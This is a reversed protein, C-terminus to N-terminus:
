SYNALSYHFVPQVSSKLVDKKRNATLAWNESKKQKLQTHSILLRSHCHSVGDYLQFLIQPTLFEGMSLGNQLFLEVFGTKDDLLAALM